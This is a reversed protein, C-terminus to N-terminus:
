AVFFCGCLWAYLFQEEPNWWWHFHDYHGGLCGFHYNADYQNSESQFLLLELPGYGCVGSGGGAECREAAAHWAGLALVGALVLTAVRLRTFRLATLLM